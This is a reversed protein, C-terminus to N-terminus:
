SRGEPRRIEDRFHLPSYGTHKKFSVSFYQANSYGVMEAIEYTKFDTEKFLAVARDLRVKTLYKQFSTNIKKKFLFCLHSQSVGAASAVDELSLSNNRYNTEIHHLAKHIITQHHSLRTNEIPEIIRFALTRLSDLIGEIAGAQQIEKYARDFAEQAETSGEKLWSDAENIMAFAMASADMKIKVMPIDVTKLIKQSFGSLHEEVLSYDAFRIAMALERAISHMELSTKSGNLNLDQISIIRGSGFLHDCSLAKTAEQCATVIGSIGAHVGSLGLTLPIKYRSRSSHILEELRQSVAATKEGQDKDTELLLMFSTEDLDCHYLSYFNELGERVLKLISDKLFEKGLTNRKGIEPCLPDLRVAVCLFPGDGISIELFDTQEKMAAPDRYYGSFLRSFFVQRLLPLSNRARAAFRRESELKERSRNLTEVFRDRDLPKDIYADVSLSIATRAYEFEDYGSLIIIRPHYGRIKVEKLMSLGDMCPMLIDTIVIDPEFEEILELGAIGDEAAGVVRCGLEDWPINRELSGRIIDDDDVVVVTTFEKGM